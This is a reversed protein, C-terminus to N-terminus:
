FKSFKTDALTESQSDFPEHILSTMHILRSMSVNEGVPFTIRFKGQPQNALQFSVVM